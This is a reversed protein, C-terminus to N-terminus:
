RFLGSDAPLVKQAAREPPVNRHPPCRRGPTQHIPQPYREGKIGFVRSIVTDLRRQARDSRPSKTTKPNMQTATPKTSIYFCEMSKGDVSKIIRRNTDNSSGTCLQIPNLEFGYYDCWAQIHNKFKGSRYDIQQKKSLRAKFAEFANERIVFTNFWGQDAPSYNPKDHLPCNTFYDNAWNFFDEDKGLGQSMARRLQRKELNMMPPQIKYFRMTLQICYAILNYFRIWEEDTFDDYLRRGFKTM